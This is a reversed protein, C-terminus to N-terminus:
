AMSPGAAVADEYVRLTRAAVAAWTFERGHREITAGDWSRALATALAHALAATGSGPPVLIGHADDALMRAVDGVATAVVPLGCALAERIM